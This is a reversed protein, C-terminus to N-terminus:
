PDTDLGSRRGIEPPTPEGFQLGEVIEDDLQCGCRPCEIWRLAYAMPELKPPGVHEVQLGREPDGGKVRLIDTRKVPYQGVILTTLERGCHPCDL